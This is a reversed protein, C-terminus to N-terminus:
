SSRPQQEQVADQVNRDMAKSMKSDKAGSEFLMYNSLARVANAKLAEIKHEDTEEKGKRFEGKVMQSLAM